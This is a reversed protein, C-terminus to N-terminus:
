RDMYKPLTKEVKKLTIMKGKKGKIRTITIVKVEPQSSSDIERFHKLITSYGLVDQLEELDYVQGEVVKTNSKTFTKTVVSRFKREM